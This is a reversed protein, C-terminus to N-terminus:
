NRGGSEGSTTPSSNLATFSWGLQLLGEVAVIRDDFKRKVGHVEQYTEHGKGAILVIDGDEASELANFIAMRRDLEVSLKKRGHRNIGSLIEAAIKGPVESRPNDSTVIIKDANKSAVMGMEPRKTRDRDGGCGFVVILRKECLKRLSELANQLAHPTHSYDVLVSFPQNLSIMEMRGPISKLNEIGKRIYATDMGFGIAVGTALAINEAHYEGILPSYVEFSSYQGKILNEPRSDSLGSHYNSIHQSWELRYRGGRLSHELTAVKIDYPSGNGSYTIVRGGAAKAMVDGWQNGMNIVALSDSGLGKFLKLKVQAYDEISRHYDLHDKSLNTFAGAAFNLGDTRGQTLAHSSVEMVAWGCGTETMECLLANIRDINPTTLSSDLKRNLTDYGITSLLGCKKGAATLISRILHVSTTKGNTGTVGILNLKESPNGYIRHSLMVLADHLNEVRLAAITLGKPLTQDTIVLVAGREEAQAVFDIGKERDGSRAAFVYGKEVLRSDQTIGYLRKPLQGYTEVIQLSDLVSRSEIGTVKDPPSM